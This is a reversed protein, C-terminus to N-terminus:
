QTNDYENVPETSDYLSYGYWETDMTSQNAVSVFYTRYRRSTSLIDVGVTDLIWQPEESNNTPGCSHRRISHTINEGCEYCVVTGCQCSVYNYFALKRIKRNCTCCDVVTGTSCEECNQIQQDIDGFDERPSEQIINGTCARKMICPLYLSGSGYSYTLHACMCEYCFTHPVTGDCRVTNNIDVEVFCCDCEIKYADM